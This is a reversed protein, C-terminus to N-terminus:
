DIQESGPWAAAHGSHPVYRMAGQGLRREGELNDRTTGRARESDRGPWSATLLPCQATQEALEFLRM